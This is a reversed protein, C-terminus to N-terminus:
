SAPRWSLPRRQLAIQIPKMHRIGVSARLEPPLEALLSTYRNIRRLVGAKFFFTRVRIQEEKPSRLELLMTNMQDYVQRFEISDIDLTAIIGCIDAIISAWLLGSLLLCITAVSREPTNTASIDGYGVSTITAIAWYLGATYM